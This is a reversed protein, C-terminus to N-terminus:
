ETRARARVGPGMDVWRIPEALVARVADPDALRRGLMRRAVDKPLCASFKLGDIADDCVRTEDAPKGALMDLRSRLPAARAADSRLRIAISDLRSSPDVVPGLADVLWANARLGAFTWWRVSGDSDSVVATSADDVWGHEDALRTLCDNARRSLTAPCRGSALVRRISRCLAFSLSRGAGVWRSRGEVETPEVYATRRPWDLHTVRWSRGGLLLVPPEGRSLQFSAEHVQGIETRGYLVTFLPPSTFVSFLEMFNRYGFSREGEPGLSLIGAESFLIGRATMYELVAEVDAAPMAAFGRVGQIWERWRTRGIGREQLALAMVQQALIHYPTAPPTVPEVYGESWLQVVGAARLFADDSTALFLCNRRTGARRGTRGVRQLFASVTTPADVQIVRDLDGVDIGLELTSTAVIVCDQGEAFAAEARRREEVGLSSHSVFTAVERRRLEAALQEVRARSDVFVLRKEGRHLEAVVKAANEITGVYDLGVDPRAPSESDPAIVRRPRDSGAALWDLLEAANGITASLGIRQLEREALRAVRALVALLHWGRDDGAFAHLEDVVVATAAGFLAAHDSHRSVLMVEISEPTTLLIDPPDHRIRRRSAEGVDGHWLAVRRGVLGAYRALRAELDNLLARLPCVYLLGLGRWDETMMRSLMPLVAAETKGGATPGLILAHEGALLPEIAQEQLPRLSSWGLSNVVHHQLAPHLREFASM